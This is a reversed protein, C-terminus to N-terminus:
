TTARSGQRGLEACEAVTRGDRAAELDGGFLSQKPYNIKVGPRASEAARCSTVHATSKVLRLNM